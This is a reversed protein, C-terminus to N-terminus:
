KKQSRVHDMYDSLKCGTIQGEKDIHIVYSDEGQIKVAEEIAAVGMGLIAGARVNLRRALYQIVTQADEDVKYTAGRPSSGFM